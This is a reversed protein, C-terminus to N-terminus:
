PAPLTLTRTPASNDGCLFLVVQQTGDAPPRYVLVADAGDYTVPVRRGSGWTAGDRCARLAAKGASEEYAAEPAPGARQLRLAQRPLSEGTLEPAAALGRAEEGTLDEPSGAGDPQTASEPGAGGAADDASGTDGATSSESEASMMDGAGGLLQPGAVGVVTVAAAAVLVQTVRRRRRRAAALDAVPTRAPATGTAGDTAGDTAEDAGGDASNGAGEAALGALVADLRAVVDDPTPETHRADALLRRVREAEAPTLPRDEPRDAM